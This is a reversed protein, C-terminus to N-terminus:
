RGAGSVARRTQITDAPGGWIAPSRVADLQTLCLLLAHSATFGHPQTSEKRRARNEPLYINRRGNAQHISIM